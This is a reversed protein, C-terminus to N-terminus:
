FILDVFSPPSCVDAARTVEEEAKALAADEKATKGPKRQLKIAKEQAKEYDLRRNERKKMTKRVPAICDRADTVPKVIRADIQAIEELLETRLEAYAEKLKFTRNLQLEPTPMALKGNARGSGEIPDYLGEYETV